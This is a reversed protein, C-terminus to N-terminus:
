VGQFCRIIEFTIIMHGGYSDTGSGSTRNFVKVM